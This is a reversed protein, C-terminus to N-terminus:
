ADFHELWPVGCRECSMGPSGIHFPCEAAYIRSKDSVLSVDRIGYPNEDTKPDSVRAAQKAESDRSLGQNQQITESTESALPPQRLFREWADAFAGRQYGKRNQDDVRLQSSHIGFSRLTKALRRATMPKGGEFTAWPSEALQNLRDLLVETHLREDAGFVSQIDGLLQVGISDDDPELGTCLAVAARRAAASWAPGGSDAIAMLPEWVDQQRDNLEDPLNPRAIRLADIADRETAWRQLRARLQEAEGSVERRRFREVSETATKRTLEIRASRDAITDPISGIGAVAKPGFVDFDRVTINTSKGVCVSAKGGRRYGSNLVGRLTEAYEREGKFAADSEDLLLTAQADSIKRTLAAATVRGTM